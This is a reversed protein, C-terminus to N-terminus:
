LYGKILLQVTQVGALAACFRVNDAASWLQFGGQPGLSELELLRLESATLGESLASGQDTASEEGFTLGGELLWGRASEHDALGEGAVQIAVSQGYFQPVRMAQCAIAGSFGPFLRQLALRATHAPALVGSGVAKIGATISNFAVPLPFVKPEPDQSNILQSTQRILERAGGQGAASAPLLATLHINGYPQHQFIVALVPAVQAAIGTAVAVLGRSAAEVLGEESVGPLVVPVTLDALWVGSLDVVLAGAQSAKPAYQASVAPPVAFLAIDVGSFDFASLLQVKLYGQGFELRRGASEESALLILEINLDREALLELVSEGVLGTAGVLAVRKRDANAAQDIM